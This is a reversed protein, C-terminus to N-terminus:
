ARRPRGTSRMIENAAQSALPRLRNRDPVVVKARGGIPESVPTVQATRQALDARIRAIAEESANPRTTQATPLSQGTQTCAALPLPAAVSLAVFGVFRAM